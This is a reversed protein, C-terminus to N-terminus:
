SVAGPGKDVTVPTKASKKPLGKLVAKEVSEAGEKVEDEVETFFEKLLQETHAIAGDHQFINAKINEFDQVLKNRVDVLDKLKSVLTEKTIM